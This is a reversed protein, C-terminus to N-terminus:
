KRDAKKALMRHIPGQNILAILKDKFHFGLTFLIIAILTVIIVTTYDKQQINSGLFSSALLAPLRAAICLIFFQLPKVPTLGAIYVLLDKPLGPILFLLFMLIESGPRNLMVTFKELNRDPIIKKLLRFGLGRAIYFAAITGLTIGVVSYVTGLFTGYVYGGAVQIFEGPIFAVVVQLVQFLVFVLVSIPGFSNLYAKFNERKKTLDIIWPFYRWSLYAVLGLVLVICLINFILAWNHKKM